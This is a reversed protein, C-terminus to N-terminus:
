ISIRYWKQISRSRFHGPLAPMGAQLGPRIKVITHSSREHYSSCFLGTTWIVFAVFLRHLEHSNAWALNQFWSSKLIRRYLSNTLLQSFITHWKADKSLQTLMQTRWLSVIHHVHALIVYIHKGSHDPKLCRRAPLEHNSSRPLLLYCSGKDGKSLNIKVWM